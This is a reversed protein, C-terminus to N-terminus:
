RSGEEVSSAGSRSRTWIGAACSHLVILEVTISPTPSTRVVRQRKLEEVEKAEDPNFRVLKNPSSATM